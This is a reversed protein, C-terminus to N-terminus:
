GLWGFWHNVGNGLFILLILGFLIRNMKTRRANIFYNSLIFSVPVASMYLIGADFRTFFTFLTVSTIFLWFFVHYYNRIYIKRFQFIRLMYISAIVILLFIYIAIILYARSYNFTFTFDNLNRHFIDWAEWPNQNFLYRLSVYLFAPVFVGAVPYIWERWFPPRLIIQAIWLFPLFYIMRAYFLAAIGLMLGAEFFKWSNREMKYSTFLFNLIIIMGLSGFIYESFQLHQLYFSVLLIFFFAPLFTREQILIFRANLWVVLIAQFLIFLFAIIKSLLVSQGEMLDALMRYLPMERSISEVMGLDNSMFGPLWLLTALILLLIATGPKSDSFIRLLM